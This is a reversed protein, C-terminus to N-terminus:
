ECEMKQLKNLLFLDIEPYLKLNEQHVRYEFSLGYASLRRTCEVPGQQQFQEFSCYGWFGHQERTGEFVDWMIVKDPRAGKLSPVADDILYPKDPFPSTQTYKQETITVHLSSYQPHGNVERVGKYGPVQAQMEKWSVSFAEYVHPPSDFVETDQNSGLSLLQDRPICLNSKGIPSAANSEGNCGILLGCTLLLLTTNKLQM